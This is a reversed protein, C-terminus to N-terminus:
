GVGLEECSLYLTWVKLLCRWVMMIVMFVWFNAFDIRIWKENFGWLMLCSNLLLCKLSLFDFVFTGERTMVSTDRGGGKERERESQIERIRDRPINTSTKQDTACQSVHHPWLTVPAVRACRQWLAYTRGTCRTHLLLFANPSPCRYVLSSCPLPHSQGALEADGMRTSSRLDLEPRLASYFRGRGVRGWGKTGRWEEDREEGQLSASRSSECTPSDPLVNSALSANIRRELHPPLPLFFPPSLWTPKLPCAM